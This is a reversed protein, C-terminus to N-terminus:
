WVEGLWVGRGTWVVTADGGKGRGEEMWVGVVVAFYGRIVM